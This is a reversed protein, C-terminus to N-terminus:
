KLAMLNARLEGEFPVVKARLKEWQDAAASSIGISKFYDRLIEKRDRHIKDLEEAYWKRTDLAAAPSVLFADHIPIGWGYKEM